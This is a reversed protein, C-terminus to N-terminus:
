PWVLRWSWFRRVWFALLTSFHSVLFKLALLSWYLWIRSIQGQTIDFQLGILCSFVVFKKSIDVAVYVLVATACNQQKYLYLGARVRYVFVSLVPASVCQANSSGALWLPSAIDYIIFTLVTFPGRQCNTAPLKNSSHAVQQQCCISLNRMEAVHQRCCVILKKELFQWSTVPLM